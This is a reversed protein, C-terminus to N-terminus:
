TQCATRWTRELLKDMNMFLLMANMPYKLASSFGWTLKTQEASLAQTVFPGSSVSAFPRVFRVEIDIRENNIISKIEQEGAGAKKNGDWTYVFGVTGDTGGFEKKMDPDKM